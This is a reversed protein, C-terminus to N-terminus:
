GAGIPAAGTDALLRHMERHSQAAHKAAAAPYGRWFVLPMGLKVPGKSRAQRAREISIGTYDTMTFHGGPNLARRVGAILHDKDAIDMAANQCWVVDFIEDAFPLDLADGVELWVRECLGCRETLM